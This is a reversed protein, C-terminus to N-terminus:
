QQQFVINSPQVVFANIKPTCIKDTEIEDKSKKKKKGQPSVGNTLM